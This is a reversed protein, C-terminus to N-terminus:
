IALFQNLSALKIFDLSNKITPFIINQSTGAGKNQIRELVSNLYEAYETTVHCSNKLYDIQDFVINTMLILDEHSKNLEANTVTNINSNHLHSIAYIGNKIVPTMKETLDKELFRVEGFIHVIVKGNIAVKILDYIDPENNRNIYEAIEKISNSYMSKVFIEKEKLAKSTFFSKLKHSTSEKFPSNLIEIMKYGIKCVDTM